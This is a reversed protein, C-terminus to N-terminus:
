PSPAKRTEPLALIQLRRLKDRVESPLFLGASGRYGAYVSQEYRKYCIEATPLNPSRRICAEYFLEHLNDVYLTDLAEYCVGALLLAQDTHKGEPALQLLEHIIATARLYIIDASHDSPYRQNDHALLVLRQAEVLLGEETKAQHPLEEKWQEISKKWQVADQKMFYPANKASLVRNVFQLALDPDKKVRVAISLGYEVAQDWELPREAISKPDGITKQFVALARDFQRTAAFFEGQENPTFDKSNLSVPLSSFSPGSGNRTHCAICYGAIGSLIGRAYYRNGSKLAIYGMQAQEQFIGSMIKITPDQDPSIMGEKSLDHALESLKKANKEIRRFQSPSNYIKNSSVDTMMEALGKYLGQMKKRWEPSSKLHQLQEENTSASNPTGAAVFLLLILLLIIQKLHRKM